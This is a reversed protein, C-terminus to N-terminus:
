PNHILKGGLKLRKKAKCHYTKNFLTRNPTNNESKSETQSLKYYKM